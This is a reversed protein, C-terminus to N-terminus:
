LLTKRKPKVTTAAASPAPKEPTKEARRLHTAGPAKKQNSALMIKEKMVAIGYGFMLEGKAPFWKVAPLRRQCHFNEPPQSYIKCFCAQWGGPAPTQNGM